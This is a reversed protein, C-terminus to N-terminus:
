KKEANYYNIAEPMWGNTEQYTSMFEPPAGGGSMDKMRQWFATAEHTDYGAMAMFYLGMKDGEIEHTRSFPLMMGYQSGLGFAAATIEKTQEPEKDIAASLAMDGFQQIMQQSMRENGHEAIAHAIEHGMVVAVGAEDQCIPLIGTYFAVNGGPM